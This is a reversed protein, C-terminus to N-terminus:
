NPQIIGDELIECIMHEIENNQAYLDNYPIINPSVSRPKLHIVHDHYQIPPFGKPIDRSVKSHNNIVKQFDM